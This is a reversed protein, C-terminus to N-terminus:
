SGPMPILGQEDRLEPSIGGISLVGMAYLVLNHHKDTAGVGRLAPLVTSQPGIQVFPQCWKLKEIAEEWANPVNAKVPGLTNFSSVHGPYKAIEM